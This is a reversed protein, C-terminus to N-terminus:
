CPSFSFVFSGGGGRVVAGGYGWGGGPLALRGDLHGVGAVVVIIVHVGRGLLGAGAGLLGSRGLRRRGLVDLHDIWALDLGLLATKKDKEKQTNPPPPPPPPTTFWPSPQNKKNM